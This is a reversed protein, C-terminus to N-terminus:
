PEGQHRSWYEFYVKPMWEDPLQDELAPMEHWRGSQILNEVAQSYAGAIAQRDPAGRTGRFQAALQGLREEAQWLNTPLSSM